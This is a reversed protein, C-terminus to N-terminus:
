SVTFFSEAIPVAVLNEKRCSSCIFRAENQLGFDTANLVELIYRLDKSSMKKLAKVIIAPDSYKDLKVIFRWLNDFITGKSEMYGSDASRPLRIEITKGLDPLVGEKVPSFSDDVYDIPLESLDIELDNTNSCFKCPAALKVKSGYSLERIKFLLFLKDQNYLEDIDVEPVCRSILLDIMNSSQSAEAIAKEDDFTMIRISVKKIDGSYGIGKSPLTVENKVDTTYGSFLDDMIPDVSNNTEDSM